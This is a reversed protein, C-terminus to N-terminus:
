SRRVEVLVGEVFRPDVDADAIGGLIRELDALWGDVLKALIVGSAALQAAGLRAAVATHARQRAVETLKDGSFAQARLQALEAQTLAASTLEGGAAARAVATRLYDDLEPRPAPAIGMAVVDVGFSEVLAIRITLGTLLEGARRLDAQAEVPRM